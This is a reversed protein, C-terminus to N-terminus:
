MDSILRADEARVVLARIAGASEAMDAGLHVRVEQLESVREMLVGLREQDQPFDARVQM